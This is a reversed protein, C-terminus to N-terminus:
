IFVCEADGLSESTSPVCARGKFSLTIELIKMPEFAKLTVRGGHLLAPAVSTTAGLLVVPNSDLVIDLSWTAQPTVMALIKRGFSRTSTM